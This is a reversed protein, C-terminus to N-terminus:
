LFNKPKDLKNITTKTLIVLYGDADFDDIKEIIQSTFAIPYFYKGNSKYEYDIANIQFVSGTMEYKVVGHQEYDYDAIVLGASNNAQNVYWEVKDGIAFPKGCCRLQWGSCYVSIQM